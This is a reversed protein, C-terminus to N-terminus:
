RAQPGSRILLATELACRGRGSNSGDSGFRRTAAIGPSVPLASSTSSGVADPSRTVAREFRGACRRVKKGTWPIDPFLALVERGGDPYKPFVFLVRTKQIRGTFRAYTDQRPNSL